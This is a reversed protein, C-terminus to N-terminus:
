KIIIIIGIRFQIYKHITYNNYMYCESNYINNVIAYNILFTYVEFIILETENLNNINNKDSINKLIDEYNELFGFIFPTLHNKDYEGIKYEVHLNNIQDILDIPLEYIKRYLLAYANPTRIKTFTDLDCM